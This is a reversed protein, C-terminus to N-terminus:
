LSSQNYKALWKKKAEKPDQGPMILITTNHNMKVPILAAFDIVRTPIRRRDESEFKIRRREKDKKAQLKEKARKAELANAQKQKELLQLNKKHQEDEARRAKRKPKEKIAEAKIALEAQSVFAEIKQLAADLEPSIKAISRSMKKFAEASRNFNLEAPNVLRANLNPVKM